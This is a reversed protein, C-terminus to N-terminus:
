IFWARADAAFLLFVGVAKLVFGAATYAASVHSGDAVLRPIMALPLVALVLFV